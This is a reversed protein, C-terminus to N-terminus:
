CRPLSPTIAPRNAAGTGQYDAPAQICHGSPTPAPYLWINPGLPVVRPPLAPAPKPEATSVVASTTEINSSFTGVRATSTSAIAPPGEVAPGGPVQLLRGETNFPLTLSRAKAGFMSGKSYVWGLQERGDQLTVLTNPKGLLRVVESKAMGPRLQSVAAESYNTGVSVCGAVALSLFALSARM